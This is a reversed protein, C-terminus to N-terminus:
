ETGQSRSARFGAHDELVDYSSLVVSLSDVYRARTSIMRHPGSLALQGRVQERRLARSRLCLTHKECAEEAIEVSLNRKQEEGRCGM